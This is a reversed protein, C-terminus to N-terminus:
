NSQHSKEKKVPAIQMGIRWKGDIKYNKRLFAGPISVAAAPVGALFMLLGTVAVVDSELFDWGLVFVPLGAGAIGATTAAVMSRRFNYAKVQSLESILLTDSGLAISNSDVISYFGFYETGLKTVKIRKTKKIRFQKGNSKKVANLEMKEYDILDDQSFVLLPISLVVLLIIKKM